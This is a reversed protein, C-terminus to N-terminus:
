ANWARKEWTEDAVDAVGTQKGDSPASEDDAVSNNQQAKSFSGLDADDNSQQAQQTESLPAQPLYREFADTFWEACYGKFVKKGYRIDKTRRMAFGKVMRAVQNTTIGKGKNFDAWPRGELANLEAILASSSISECGEDGSEPDGTFISQMDRLLEIAKPAEDPEGSLGQAANRALTPWEGGALDAIAFLPVWNDQDRDNADDLLVPEAQRLASINDTAWRAAKRQLVKLDPYDKIASLKEVRDRKTKRQMKVVIARSATTDPLNGILALCKGAWTRFLTPEHSDGVTRLVFAQSRLHSANVIERLEPNLSFASDCEDVILVPSYKEVVRFLAAASINSTTLPKPVLRGVLSQSISKGCQRVPSCFALMPAIGFADIAHAFLIWLAEAIIAEPAIVIFRQIAARIEDLLEGGDVPEDWPEVSALRQAINGIEKEEQRYKKKWNRWWSHHRKLADHKLEIRSLKDFAEIGNAVVYDDFGIKEEGLGPIVVTRANAGRGKLEQMFAYLGQQAQPKVWTDADFVVEVQRDPWAISDLDVIGRGTGAEVWNWVGAVGIAMRGLQVALASKKEGEIILLPATPNALVPRVPSLIYLWCGKVTQHYKQIKGDPLQVPPFLKYRSRKKDYVIELVSEVTPFGGPRLKSIDDPRVSRVKMLFITADNLGSKRLDEIHAPAMSPRAGDSKEDMM